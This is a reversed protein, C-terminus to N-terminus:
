RSGADVKFRQGSRNFAVQEGTLEFGILIEFNSGSVQDNARPIVIEDVHDVATLRDTGVFDAQIGFREKNIVAVNRRTVAVWYVYQKASGQAKPGKGFAFRPVLKMRIPESGEYSCTADVGQIEGTFGVNSSSVPGTIEVYRAADWLVSVYPCAGAAKAHYEGLDPRSAEREREKKRAARRAADADQAKDAAYSPVAVCVACIVLILARLLNM